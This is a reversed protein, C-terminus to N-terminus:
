PSRTLAAPLVSNRFGVEQMRRSIERLMTDMRHEFTHRALILERGRQGKQEREEPESLYHEMLRRLEEPTEYTVVADGFTEEIEPLHDSLVLAGCALADYVRNSVFGHERMDDWHDNLVIAASSYAKRVQDSPLYEGAVYREDILGEWAGGWVALDHRTPLLDRLIRREVKRSNGVFVLERNHEPDPDPFFVEPDTAQQLVVVPTETRPRLKEAWRESAVFVLDYKDCEKPTVQDPHSINWLVNFQGPKPAYPTLGKLHITVDHKLGRLSDWEDLTQISCPHGHRELQRCMAKAFPLDGWTRAVEQNPAGIKICFGLTEARTRLLGTLQEARRDYTHERLVVKRYRDALEERRREDNLLLDLQERLDRRDSYTPFDEDFLEHVGAECNSVVLAGAALADFVRSNVAGYPLTPSATHDIVLKASSYIRPLRDYPAQGRAYRAVQPVNGWDKGFIMFTEGPTVDLAGVIRPEGWYNGTFVYDAEYTPDPPTKHFREPNTAIPFLATVTKATKKEIIEKSITSSALVVDFQEFWPRETWRDTWNRIWAITTVGSVRSIDYKDILVLLYDLDDPLSYWGGGRQQVYTVRWGRKELADGMEHATYWDGYGDNPDNSTVTIAVHAAEESWFGATDLRDLSLERDLSAGWRELFLHRNNTRNIRQFDKGEVEQTGFERHFLVSRGSAVVKRGSQLLKLSLDVDEAGYRYSRSFGEVARFTERGILLCAATAAPCTANAGLHEGLADDDGLNFALPTGGRLRFRVGRHQVAYGSRTKHGSGGPYLLFGGAADAEFAKMGHVLEKLWGPEFPETDNNLFLLLEGSAEEVGQNNADSFTANHSNRILKIPFRGRFSEVFEVSGDTSGNDVLVVEFNPYDTRDRLAPLLKKLHSAGNRNLIVISVPPWDDLRPIAGLRKRVTRALDERSMWPEAPPKAEATPKQEPLGTVSGHEASGSRWNRYQELVSRLHDPVTPAPARRSVKRALEGIAQGTKWQRSALLASVGRDIEEIWRILQRVNETERRANEAERNLRTRVLSIRRTKQDLGETAKELRERMRGLEERNDIRLKERAATHEQQKIEAELRAAEVREVSRAAISPPEFAADLTDLFRALEQNRAKLSSPTLVGLGHLGPVVTLELERDTERAFDEAATLVGNRPGGERTAHDLHRNLGGDKLIRSSGPMLGGRTYPQRYEAPITEPAYYLDRRAYPWGVDHLMVLPFPRSLEACRKEIERLENFVTYWNHDGDILVVDSGDIKPIAALSLDPHFVLREGHREQWEAVDYKPLPDVVHLKGGARECFKLINRTNPGYDSGIEVIVNPKVAELIPEIVDEWSRHM